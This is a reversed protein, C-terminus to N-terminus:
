TDSTDSMLSWKQTFLLYGVTISAAIWTIIFIGWWVGLLGWELYNVLFSFILLPAFIHRSINIVLGFIPRKLGQLVAVSLFLLAYAPLAFADIQLYEVGIRIVEPETTFLRMMLNAFTYVLISGMSMMLFGYKASKFFTTKVRETLGAGHNQGTLSLAAMNLGITPLFGIQEVRLAVGYAAIAFDGFRGVYSTIIFVGATVLMMSLSAPAGQYIIDTSVEKNLKYEGLKCDKMLKSSYLKYAIYLMVVMQILVTAWAIGGIGFAPIPGWGFLFLPDLIINVLFGVILANRNTKTDGQATLGSNLTQVLVMFPAGIWIINIYELAFKLVEGKGGMIGFIWPSIQWGIFALIVSLIFSLTLAQQQYHKAKILNKAGLANSILANTGQSIGVGISIVLLFPVFSLSLAALGEASFQGAWYTDILNYFTHFMMGVGAPVAIKLILKSIKGETLNM